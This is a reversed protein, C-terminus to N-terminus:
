ALVTALYILAYIVSLYLVELGLLEVGKECPHFPYNKVDLSHVVIPSSLHYAKDMYFPKFIKM